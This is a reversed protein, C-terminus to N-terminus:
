PASSALSFASKQAKKPSPAKIKKCSAAVVHRRLKLLPVASDGKAGHLVCRVCHTESERLGHGEDLGALTRSAGRGRIEKLVRLSMLVALSRFLCIWPVQRFILKLGALVSLTPWICSSAVSEDCISRACHHTTM